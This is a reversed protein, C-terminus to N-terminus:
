SSSALWQRLVKLSAHHTNYELTTHEYLITHIPVLEVVCNTYAIADFGSVVAPSWVTGNVAQGKKSLIKRMRDRMLGPLCLSNGHKESHTPLPTWWQGDAWGWLNGTATELWDGQCNTLIAEDAGYKQAQQRALWCALYNGTKHTPLSRAYTSPALWCAIGEQQWVALKPPLTRGTIWETGDSFITIRIVPYHPLLQQCGKHVSPWNPSHWDFTRLSHTLRDCHASFQSRPHDLRQEYVRMTTFVSAGFKLAKDDFARNGIAPCDAAFLTGNFWQM